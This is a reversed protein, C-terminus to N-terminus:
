SSGPFAPHQTLDAERARCIRGDTGIFYKWGPEPTFTGQAIKEPSGPPILHWVEQGRLFYLVGPERKIGLNEVVEAIVPKPPVYGPQMREAINRATPELILDMDTTQKWDDCVFLKGSEVDIVVFRHENDDPGQAQTWLGFGRDTAVTVHLAEFALQLGVRTAYSPDGVRAKFAPSAIVAAAAEAIEVGSWHAYLGIGGGSRRFYLNSRNGM